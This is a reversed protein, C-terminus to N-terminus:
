HGGGNGEPNAARTRTRPTTRRSVRQKQPKEHPAAGDRVKVTVAARYAALRPELREMYDADFEIQVAAADYTGIALCHDGPLGNRLEFTHVRGEHIYYPIGHIHKLEYVMTQGM